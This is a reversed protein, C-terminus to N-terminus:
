TDASEKPKEKKQPWFLHGLIVGLSLPVIPQKGALDLIVTSFTYQSGWALLAFVDYVATILILVAIMVYTAIGKM